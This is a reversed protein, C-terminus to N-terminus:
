THSCDALERELNIKTVRRFIPDEPVYALGFGALAGDLTQFMSNSVLQAEM